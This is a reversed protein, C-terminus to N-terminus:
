NPLEEANEVWDVIQHISELAIVVMDLFLDENELRLEYAWDVSIVRTSPEFDIIKPFPVTSNFSLQM